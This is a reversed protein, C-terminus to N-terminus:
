GKGIVCDFFTMLQVVLSEIWRRVVALTIRKRRFMDKRRFM